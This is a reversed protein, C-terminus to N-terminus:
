QKKLLVEPLEDLAPRTIKYIWSAPLSSRSGTRSRSPSYDIVLVGNRILRNRVQKFESLSIEIDLEDLREEVEEEENYTTVYERIGGMWRLFERVESQDMLEGLKRSSVDSHQVNYESGETVIEGIIELAYEPIVHWWHNYANSSYRNKYVLGTGILKDFSVEDKRSHISWTREVGDPDVYASEEELDDRLFLGLVTIGEQVEQPAEQIKERVLQIIESLGNSAIATQITDGVKMGDDVEEYMNEMGLEELDAQVENVLEDKEEGFVLEATEYTHRKSTGYSLMHLVWLKKVDSEQYEYVLKQIERSGPNGLRERISKRIFESWNIEEERDM